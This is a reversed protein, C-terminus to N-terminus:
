GASAVLGLEVVQGPAGHEVGEGGQEGSAAQEDGEPANAAGGVEEEDEPEGQHGYGGEQGDVTVGGQRPQQAHNGADVEERGDAQDRGPLPGAVTQDRAGDRRHSGVRPRM